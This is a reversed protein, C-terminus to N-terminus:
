DKKTLPSLISVNSTCPHDPDDVNQPDSATPATARQSLGPPSLIALSLFVLITKLDNIDGVVSLNIEAM